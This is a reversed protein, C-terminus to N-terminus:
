QGRGLDDAATLLAALAISPLLRDHHLVVIFHSDRVVATAYFQDCGITLTRTWGLRRACDRSLEVFTGVFERLTDLDPKRPFESSAFVAGQVFAAAAFIGPQTALFDATTRAEQTSPVHKEPEATSEAAPPASETPTITDATGFLRPPPVRFGHM